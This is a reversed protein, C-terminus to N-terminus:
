GVDM